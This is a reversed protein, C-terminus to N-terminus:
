LLARMGRTGPGTRMATAGRGVPARETILGTVGADAIKRQRAAASDTM